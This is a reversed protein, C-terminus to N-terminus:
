SQHNPTLLLTYDSVKISDLSFDGSYMFKRGNEDVSFGIMKTEDPTLAFFHLVPNALKKNALDVLVFIIKRKFSKAAEEFNDRIKEFEEPLAFLLLQRSVEDEFIASATEHSFTVVLPLKNAGLFGSIEKREFAGDFTSLKENQKKL